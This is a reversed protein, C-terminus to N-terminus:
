IPQCKRNLQYSSCAGRKEQIAKEKKLLLRHMYHQQLRGIGKETRCAQELGIYVGSWCLVVEQDPSYM